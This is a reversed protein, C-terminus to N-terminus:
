HGLIKPCHDEERQFYLERDTELPLSALLHCPAEELQVLSILKENRKAVVDM